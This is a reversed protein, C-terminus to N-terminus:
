GTSIGGRRRRSLRPGRAIDEPFSTQNVNVGIGLVVYDLGEEKLVGGPTNRCEEERQYTSREAM